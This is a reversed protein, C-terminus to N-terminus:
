YATTRVTGTVPKISLKFVKNGYGALIYNTDPLPTVLDSKLPEGMPSFSMSQSGSGLNVTGIYSNSNIEDRLNVYIVTGSSGGFPNSLVKYQSTTKDYGMLVVYEIDPMFYVLIYLQTRVAEQQATEIIQEITRATGAAYYVDDHGVMMMSFGAVLGMIVVVALLEVLTFAHKSGCTTKNLVM